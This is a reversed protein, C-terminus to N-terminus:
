DAELQEVSLPHSGLIMESLEAEYHKKESFFVSFAGVGLSGKEKPGMVQIPIPGVAFGCPQNPQFLCTSVHRKGQLWKRPLVKQKKQGLSVQCKETRDKFVPWCCM